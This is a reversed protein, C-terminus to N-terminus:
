NKTDLVALIIPPAFGNEFSHALTAVYANRFYIKKFKFSVFIKTNITDFIILHYTHTRERFILWPPVMVMGFINKERLKKKTYKNYQLRDFPYSTHIRELFIVKKFINLLFSFNPIYKIITYIVRRARSRRTKAPSWDCYM